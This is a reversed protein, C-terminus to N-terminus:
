MRAYLEAASSGRMRTVDAEFLETIRASVTAGIAERAQAVTMVAAARAM